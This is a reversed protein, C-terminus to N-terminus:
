TTAQPTQTSWDVYLLAGNIAIDQVAGGVSYPSGSTSSVNGAGDVRVGNFDNNSGSVYAM